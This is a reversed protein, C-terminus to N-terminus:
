EALRFFDSATALGERALADRYHPHIAVFAM